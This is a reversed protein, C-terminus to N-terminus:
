DPFFRPVPFISLNPVALHPVERLSRSLKTAKSSSADLAKDSKGDILHGARIAIRRPASAPKTEQAQVPVPSAFLVVACLLFTFLFKGRQM